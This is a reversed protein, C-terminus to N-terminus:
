TKRKLERYVDDDNRKGSVLIRVVTDDFDYIVRYEGVDIRLYPYGYLKKSDNPEPNKLLGFIASVLQKYQKGPLFELFKMSDKTVELRLM